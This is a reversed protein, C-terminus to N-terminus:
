KSFFFFFFFTYFFYILFFTFNKKKKKKKTSEKLKLGALIMAFLGDEGFFFVFDTLNSILHEDITAVKKFMFIMESIQEESCKKQLKPLLDM